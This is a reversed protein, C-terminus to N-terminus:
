IAKRLRTCLATVTLNHNANLKISNMLLDTAEILELLSRRSLKQALVEQSLGMRNRSLKLKEGLTM